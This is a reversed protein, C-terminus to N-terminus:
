LRLTNHLQQAAQTNGFPTLRVSEPGEHHMVASYLDRFHLIRSRLVVPILPPPIRFYQASVARCLAPRNSIVLRCAGIIFSGAINSM